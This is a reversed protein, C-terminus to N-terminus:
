SYCIIQLNYWTAFKLIFYFRRFNANLTGYDEIRTFYNSNCINNVCVCVGGGVCVCVGGVCGGCVFFSNEFLSSYFNFSLVVIHFYLQCSIIYYSIFHYSIIHFSIFHYSQYSIHYSIIHYSIIHYSIIHYSIIHNCIVAGEINM